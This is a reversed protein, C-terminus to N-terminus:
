QVLLRGEPYERIDIMDLSGLRVDKMLCLKEERAFYYCCGITDRGKVDVAMIVDDLYEDVGLEASEDAREM